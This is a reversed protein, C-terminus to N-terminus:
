EWIFAWRSGLVPTNGRIIVKEILLYLAAPFTSLAPLPIGDAWREYGELITKM